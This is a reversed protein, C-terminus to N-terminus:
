KRRRKNTAGEGTMWEDFESGEAGPPDYPVTRGNEYSGFEGNWDFEVAAPWVGYRQKLIIVEATVDDVRKWLAPRHMGMITDPVEIWAGSGKIGERTPRKDARNEVDKSRQQQVLICHTNTEEAISQQRILAQEEDDPETFSLVRKWLDFIAVDCGSDAIYGHVRDLREGNSVRRNGRGREEDAVWLKLFRIRASLRNMEGEVALLEEETLKGTAARKRSLGLSMVALLELTVRGKMEWAGYLIRKGKAELGLAIRATFTSKSTGPCGVIATIQGPVAGPIFRHEGQEDFDLGEVGYLHVAKDDGRTRMDAIAERVLENPDLLHRREGWGDFSAALNRAYARVAEPRATQDQIAKLLQDLPGAAANARARDWELMEVHHRINPPKKPHAAILKGLYDVDAAGGVLQRFTEPSYELGARRLKGLGEWAPGHGKGFFHDPKVRPELAAFEKPDIICAAIIIQENTIDIPVRATRPTVLPEPGGGEKIVRRAM